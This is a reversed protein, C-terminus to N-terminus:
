WLATRSHVSTTLGETNKTHHLTFTTGLSAASRSVMTLSHRLFFHHRNQSIFFFVYKWYCNTRTDTNKIVKNARTSKMQFHNSLFISLSLSPLGEAFTMLDPSSGTVSTDLVLAEKRPNHKVRRWWLM